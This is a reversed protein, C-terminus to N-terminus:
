DLESTLFDYLYINSISGKTKEVSSMKNKWVGCVFMMMLAHRIIARGRIDIREPCSHMKDVLM